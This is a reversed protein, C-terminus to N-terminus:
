EHYLMTFLARQKMHKDIHLSRIDAYSILAQNPKNCLWHLLKGKERIKGSKEIKFNGYESSFVARWSSCLSASRQSLYQDKGM